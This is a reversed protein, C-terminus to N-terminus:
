KLQEHRGPYLFSELLELRQRSMSSHANTLLSNQLLTMVQPLNIELRFTTNKLLSESEAYSNSYHM